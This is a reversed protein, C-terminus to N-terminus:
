YIGPHNNREIERGKRCRVLLDASLSVFSLSFGALVHSIKAERLIRKM